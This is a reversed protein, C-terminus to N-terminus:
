WAAKEKAQQAGDRREKDAVRKQLDACVKKNADQTPPEEHCKRFALYRRVGGDADSRFLGVATADDLKWQLADQQANAVDEFHKQAAALKADHDSDCGSVLASAAFLLSAVAAVAKM